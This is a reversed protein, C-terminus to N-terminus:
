TAQRMGAVALKRLSVVHLALALPVATTPILVLPLLSIELTSPTVHVLQNPGLGAAFGIGVAVVLDVIGLINFWVANRRPGGNALRWAVFPAALGVAIDGVGAPIAFIAPLEGLAMVILFTLGAVRFTQPVALRAATGPAALIRLMVPIRTAAMALGMSGLLAVPIWPNSTAPDQRYLGARALLASAVIWGCWVLSVMVGVRVGTSRSLGAAIAGRYLAISTAGPLAVVPILVLLWIYGPLSNM